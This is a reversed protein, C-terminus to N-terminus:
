RHAGFRLSSQDLLDEPMTYWALRATSQSMGAACIPRRSSKMATAAMPSTDEQSMAGAKRAPIGAM